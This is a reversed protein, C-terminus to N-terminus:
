AFHPVFKDYDTKSRGSNQQFPWNLEQSKVNRRIGMIIYTFLMAYGEITIRAEFQSSIPMNVELKVKEVLSLSGHTPAM